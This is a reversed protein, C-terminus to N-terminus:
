WLHLGFDGSGSIALFFEALNEKTRAGTGGNPTVSASNREAFNQINTAKIKCLEMKYPSFNM